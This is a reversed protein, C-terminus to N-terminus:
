QVDLGLATLQEGMVVARMTSYVHNHASLLELTRASPM